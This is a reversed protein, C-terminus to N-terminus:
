PDKDGLLALVVDSDDEKSSSGRTGTETNKGFHDVAMVFCRNALAARSLHQMIIKNTAADNEQGTSDYGAAKGYTDIIVLALPLGFRKQMEESAMQIMDTLEHGAGKDLLRPCTEVWVFPAKDIEPCKDRLAGELRISVESQGECAVFLVGGQRLVPFKIFSGGSMVALTLDMATFTKYTGWQGSIQGVGVEPILDEVLQPRSDLVPVEGHWHFNWRSKQDGDKEPDISPSDVEETFQDSYDTNGFNM